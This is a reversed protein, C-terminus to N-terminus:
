IKQQSRDSRYKESTEWRLVDLYMKLLILVMSEIDDREGILEFQHLSEAMYPVTGEASQLNM